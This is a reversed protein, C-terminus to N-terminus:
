KRSFRQKLWDTVAGLIVPDITTEITAYEDVLGTGAPQMLHNLGKFTRVTADPNDALLQRMVPENQAASVQLDKSGFFALVPMRLASLAPAPDYGVMAATYPTAISELQDAPVRKEEPQSENHTRIIHRARELDGTRLAGVLETIYALHADTEEPSAGAARLIERNQKLLIDAGSVAPGAMSIVFAVGSDPRAAVLPALYGGESHGLLGVRTPDIEPRGRLFDLGARIDTTLDDYGAEQLVGGTGGVGRDDVRLVAYGVRTLVDSLVLFPKHGMLEENRDQPGSGTILLVAPFPGQGEPRTLTGAVTIDGSRYTVDESVYPLPPKPEQPRERGRVAGREMALTFTRGSQTFDGTIRGTGTDLRGHFAADGPVNPVSFEVRGPETVVKDLSAGVIGQAPIDITASDPGTFNVGVALPQAPLEITGHWEGRVTGGSGPETLSCGTLLAVVMSLVLLVMRGTRM